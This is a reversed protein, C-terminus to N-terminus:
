EDCEGVDVIFETMCYGCRVARPTTYWDACVGPELGCAEDLQDAVDPSEVAAARVFTERGCESCDFVFAHHLEVRNM